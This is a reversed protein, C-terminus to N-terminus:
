VIDLDVPVGFILAMPWITWTPSCLCVFLCDFPCVSAVSCIIEGAEHDIVIYAIPMRPFKLEGCVEAQLLTTHKVCASCSFNQDLDGWVTPSAIDWKSSWLQTAVPELVIYAIPVRPFKFEECVEAQLLTTHKVCASTLMFYMSKRPHRPWRLSENHGESNEQLRSNKRTLTTKQCNRGHTLWEKASSINKSTWDPVLNSSKLARQIIESILLGQSSHAARSRSHEM